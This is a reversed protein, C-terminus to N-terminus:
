GARTYPFNQTAGSLNQVRFSSGDSIITVANDKVGTGQVMNTWSGSIYAQIYTATNYLRITWIGRSLIYTNGNDVELFGSTYLEGRLRGDVTVNNFQVNSDTKVNQDMGYLENDGQGTNVTPASLNKNFYFEDESEDWLIEADDAFVLRRDANSNGRLSLGDSLSKLSYQAFHFLYKDTYNGSADKYGGGIYLDNGDYWGHKTNSWTPSTTTATPTLDSGSPVLKIWYHTSNSIGALGSIATNADAYYLSGGQEVISGAGIEDASQNEFNTLVIRLLGRRQKEIPTIAPSNAVTSFGM